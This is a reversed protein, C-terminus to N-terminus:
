ILIAMNNRHILEDYDKHGLTKEIENTHKGSIKATDEHTYNSIGRAIEAGSADTVSIM